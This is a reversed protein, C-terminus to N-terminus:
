KDGLQSVALAKSEAFAQERTLGRVKSQDKTMRFRKGTVERYNELTLNDPTMGEPIFFNVTVRSNSADSATSTTTEAGDDLITDENVTFEQKIEKVREKWSEIRKPDFFVEQEQLEDPVGFPRAKRNRPFLSPFMWRTEKKIASASKYRMANLVGMKKWEDGDEGVALALYDKVIKYLETNGMGTTPSIKGWRIGIVSGLVYAHFQAWLSIPAEGHKRRPRAM